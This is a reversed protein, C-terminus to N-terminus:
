SNTTELNHNQSHLYSKINISNNCLESRSFFVGFSDIQRQFEWIVVALKHKESMIFPKERYFICINLPMQYIQFMFVPIDKNKDYKFTKLLEVAFLVTQINWICSM